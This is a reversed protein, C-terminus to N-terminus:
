MQSIVRPWISVEHASYDYDDNIYSDPDTLPDKIGLEYLVPRIRGTEMFEKFVELEIQSQRLPMEDLAKQFQEFKVVSAPDQFIADSLYCDPEKEGALLQEVERDFKELNYDIRGQQVWISVLQDLTQHLQKLTSRDIMSDGIIEM